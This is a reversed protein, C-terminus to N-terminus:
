YTHSVNSQFLQFNFQYEFFPLIISCTILIELPLIAFLLWLLHQFSLLKLQLLKSYVLVLNFCYM